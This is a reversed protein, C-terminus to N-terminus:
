WSGWHPNVSNRETMEKKVTKEIEAALHTRWGTLARGLQTYTKGNLTLHSMLEAFFSPMSKELYRMEVEVHAFKQVDVPTFIFIYEDRKGERVGGFFFEETGALNVKRYSKTETYVTVSIPGSPKYSKEVKKLDNLKVILAKEIVESM